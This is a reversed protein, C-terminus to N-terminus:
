WVEDASPMRITEIPVVTLLTAELLRQVKKQLLTVARSHKCQSGAALSEELM